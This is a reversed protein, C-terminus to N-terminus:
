SACDVAVDASGGAIAKLTATCDGAEEPVKPLRITAGLDIEYSEGNVFIRASDEDHIASLAVSVLGEIAWAAAGVGLRHVGPELAEPQITASATATEYAAPQSSDAKAMAATEAELSALSEGVGALDGKMDGIAADLSSVQDHVAAELNGVTETLASEFEAFQEEIAGLGGSAEAMAAAQEDLKAALAEVQGKIEGLATETATAAGSQAELDGQLAAVQAELEDTDPGTWVGILYGVVLIAVAAVAQMPINPM